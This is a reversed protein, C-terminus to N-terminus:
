GTPVARLGADGALAMVAEPLADTAIDLDTVPRGMLANRVCGGVFLARHGAAELMTCVAQAGPAALWDGAVRM